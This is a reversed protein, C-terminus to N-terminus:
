THNASLSTWAAEADAFGNSQVVHARFQATIGPIAAIESAILETSVTASNHSFLTETLPDNPAVARYYIHDDSDAPSFYQWGSAVTWSPGKAFPTVQTANASTVGTLQVFVYTASESGTFDVTANWNLTAGPYIYQTEDGLKTLTLDGFRIVRASDYGSATASYRAIVGGSLHFSFLTLCFLVCAMCMPINVLSKAVRKPKAM